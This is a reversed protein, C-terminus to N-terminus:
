LRYQPFDSSIRLFAKLLLLQNKQETIRGVTVITSDRRAGRAAQVFYKEELPNWIM